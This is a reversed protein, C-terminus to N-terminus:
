FDQLNNIRKLAEVAEKCADHRNSKNHYVSRVVDNIKEIGQGTFQKLSKGKGLLYFILLPTNFLVNQNEFLSTTSYLQKEPTHYIIIVGAFM